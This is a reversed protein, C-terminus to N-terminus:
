ASRVTFRLTHTKSSRGAAKASLVLTYSGPKLRKHHPLIGDFHIVSKGTRAFFTLKATIRSRASGRKFDLQVTAPENLLFSIATGVPTRSSLSAKSSGERWTSASQRLDSITPACEPVKGTFTAEFAGMDVKAACGLRSSAVRANGALDTALGAPVLANSGADITPSTATEAGESNLDPDACINGDGSPVVPGGSEACVDSFKFTTTGFGWIEPQPTNGYLISNNLALLDNESGWLAGGESEPGADVSNGVVTSDDLTLSSAPCPGTLECDPDRSNGVYVAGGWGGEATSNGSFLDDSGTFQGPQAPIKGEAKAAIVGLGGGEAPLSSHGENVAVRNDIFRDSVSQVIAGSVWEGGGGAALDPTAKEQTETITNEKFTNGTQTATFTVPEDENLTLLLGAGERPGFASKYGAISNREFLNGSVTVPTSSHYASILAGGGGGASEDDEFVNDSVVAPSTAGEDFLALGGGGLGFGVRDDIFTNGDVIEGSGLIVLAGGQIEATDDSFVDHEITTTGRAQFVGVAGGDFTASSGDRTFTDGALTVSGSEYFDLAKNETDGTFKIDSLTVNSNPGQIIPKAPEAPELISTGDSAGELTFANSDLTEVNVKCSGSELQFVEGPEGKGPGTGFLAPLESCKIPTAALAAPAMALAAILGGLIATALRLLQAVRWDVGGGYM